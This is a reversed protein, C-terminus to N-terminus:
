AQRNGYFTYPLPNGIGLIVRLFLFFSLVSAICLLQLYWFVYKFRTFIIGHLIKVIYFIFIWLSVFCSKQSKQSSRVALRQLVLGYAFSHKIHQKSLLNSNLFNPPVASSMWPLFSRAIQKFFVGRLSFFCLCANTKYNKITRRREKRSPRETTLRQFIGPPCM